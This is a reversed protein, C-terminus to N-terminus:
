WLYSKEAGMAYELLVTDSDLLREQIEKLSIPSPQTLAAYRPSSIRIQAELDHYQGLLSNIEKGLAAAQDERSDAQLLRSQIAAKANFVQQWSREKKLLAPDVGERVSARAETLMELLSRARARESISLAQADHGERPYRNHLQMLL